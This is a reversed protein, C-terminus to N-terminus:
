YLQIKNNDDDSASNLRSFSSLIIECSRILALYLLVIKSKSLFIVKALRTIAEASSDGGVGITIM